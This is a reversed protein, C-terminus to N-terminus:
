DTLHSGTCGETKRWTRRSHMSLTQSRRLAGRENKVGKLYRANEEERTSRTMGEKAKAKGGETNDIVLM